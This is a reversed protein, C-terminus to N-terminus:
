STAGVCFERNLAEMIEGDAAGEIDMESLKRTVKDATQCGCEAVQQECGCPCPMNRAIELRRGTLEIEDDLGLDLEPQAALRELYTARDVVAGDDRLKQQVALSEAFTVEANSIEGVQYLAIKGDLGILVTTPFSDVGYQGAVRSASDLAVPFDIPVEDLFDEVTARDEGVDIGLLLLEEAGVSRAYRDLEPMEKRCPVCWTAFFNLVIIKGGIEDSLAFSDGNLLEVAFDPPYRGVWRDSRLVFDELEAIRGEDLDPKLFGHFVGVAAALVWASTRLWGLPSL